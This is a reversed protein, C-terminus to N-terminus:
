TCTFYTSHPSKVTYTQSLEDKWYWEDDRLPNISVSNLDMLFDKVLYIKRGNSSNEGGLLWGYGNIITGM